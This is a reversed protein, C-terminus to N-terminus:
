SYYNFLLVFNTVKRGLLNTDEFRHVWVVPEANRCRFPSLCISNRKYSPRGNSSCEAVLWRRKQFPVSVFPFCIFPPKSVPSFIFRISGFSPNEEVHKGQKQRARSRQLGATKGKPARQWRRSPFARIGRVRRFNEVENKRWVTDWFNTFYVLFLISSRDLIVRFSGLPIQRAAQEQTRSTEPASRRSNALM